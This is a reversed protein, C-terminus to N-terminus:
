PGAAADLIRRLAALDDPALSRLSQPAPDHVGEILRVMDRGADTLSVVKCRRNDPDVERVVLG